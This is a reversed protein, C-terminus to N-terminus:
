VFLDREILEVLVHILFLHEEQIRQTSIHPILLSRDVKKLLKGGRNGLLGLTLLGRERAVSVAKVLNASNGSTTLVILMDGKAGLAEVQRAFLNDFGYDNSVATMVAPDCNLALAPLAQRNRESTLRVVLEAAFHSAQAASGGNGAILLKGGSGFVGSIVAATELIASGLQEVVSKRLIASESAVAILAALKDNDSM